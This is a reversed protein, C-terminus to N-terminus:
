PVPPGAGFSFDQAVLAGGAPMGWAGGSTIVVGGAAAPTPTNRTPAVGPSLSTAQVLDRRGLLDPGRVANGAVRLHALTDPPSKSVLLDRPIYLLFVYLSAYPVALFPPAVGFPNNLVLCSQAREEYSYMSHSTDAARPTAM